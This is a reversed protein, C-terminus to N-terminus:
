SESVKTIMELQAVIESFYRPSIEDLKIAKPDDARNDLGCSINGPHYFRVNEISFNSDEGGIYMGEFYLEVANGLPTITGDPNKRKETIDERYFEYFCGADQPSGKSWGLKATRGILSMGNVQRGSFRELDIKGKEEDTVRYVKRDLQEIPQIIEYDRLQEKWASLTDEDLEIPHVLGITCTEPLEAEDEDSTNFSGDEMYRFTQVQGDDMYAAWILGIAFSHMVPNRVFLNEWAAKKWRRDALLATELRSKQISIVNKLQKKVQKFEANSKKAMEENDKKGPSPINKLRKGSEDFVELELAPSLYVKFKRTGYDFIRENKEDFGLDPVIRDGLEDATISLAEAATDIARIAANRVQKQKFKHALNDVIMLAQSSGNLSIAKVADAAIAGRMNEAWSKICTLVTDIMDNGGHIVAFYLAWKNKSVAGSSYWKSFIEAAFCHLEDQNLEAALMLANDNRGPIIMASYCLIIAQMYQDDAIRGDKFHVEPNATEFLWLVKKNRGGKCLDEALERPSIQQGKEGAASASISSSIQDRIKDALRASKETEAAKELIERYNDTGWSVLIDLAMERAAMKKASLLAIIDSEYEKHKKLIQEVTRCVEGSNDACLKLLRDKNRNNKNTAELYIALMRRSFVDGTLCVSEYEEDFRNSNEMMLNLVIAQIFKGTESYSDFKNYMQDYVNFRDQIPVNEKILIDFLHKIYEHRREIDNSFVAAERILPGAQEIAKYAAYREFYSTHRYLVDVICLTHYSDSNIKNNPDTLKKRVPELVSIDDQIRLYAKVEKRGDKINLLEREIILEIFDTGPQVNYEKVADPNNKKLILYFDNFFTFYYCENGTTIMKENMNMVDIFDKPYDKAALSLFALSNKSQDNVLHQKFAGANHACQAAKKINKRAAAEITGMSLLDPLKELNAMFYDNPAIDIVAGLFAAQRDQINVKLSRYVNESNMSMFQVLMLTDSEESSGAKTNAARTQIYDSMEKIEADTLEGDPLVDVYASGKIVKRFDESYALALSYLKARTLSEDESCYLKGAQYMVKPCKRAYILLNSAYGPSTHDVYAILAIIKATLDEGRYKLELAHYLRKVIDSDMHYNFNYTYWSLVRGITNGGVADLYLIYRDSYQEKGNILKRQFLANPNRYRNVEKLKRYKLNEILSLDPEKSFDFFKEAAKMDEGEIGLEALVALIEALMSSDAGNDPNLLNM